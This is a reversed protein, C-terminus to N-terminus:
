EDSDLSRMLKIRESLAADALARFQSIQAADQAQALIRSQGVGLEVAVDVGGGWLYPYIVIFDADPRDKFYAICRLVNLVSAYEILNESFELIELNLCQQDPDYSLRTNMGMFAQLEPPLATNPETLGVMWERVHTLPAYVISALWEMQFSPSMQAWDHFHTVPLIPSALFRKYAEPSLHAQMVLSSPESM